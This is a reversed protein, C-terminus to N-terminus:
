RIVIPLYVKKELYTMFVITNSAGGGPAPNFVTVSATGAVALNSAPVVATLQTGNVFTTALDVGNWRVSSGGVFNAGNVTLAFANGGATASNPNLSVLAPASNTITFILPSSTGGGPAPNFVTVSATGAVALNSAPVIATLQTSNVFTTALDVGNWRVSSGGVFNAGNVTLAFASGGAAASNPNLSVLTPAPNYTYKQLFVNDVFPGDYVVSSDSTFVFAIWVSSDGVLNGLGPVSTLDFNVYRWGGSDGSVRTGYFNTGNASAYWGFYDCCSESRNWYYFLLEADVADSLDFPGYVMWSCANNPYYYYQPDLGNAGGNAAWASWSGSYPKYDDDDWYYEGYASGNCDFVSWLGSPFVSEFNESMITNWGTVASPSPAHGEQPPEKKDPQAPYIEM